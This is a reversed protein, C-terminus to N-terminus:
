SQFNLKCFLPCYSKLIFYVLALVSTIIGQHLSILCLQNVPQATVCYLWWLGWSVNCFLLCATEARNSLPHTACCLCKLYCALHEVTLLAASFLSKVCCASNFTTSPRQTSGLSRTYALGLQHAVHDEPNPSSPLSLSSTCVRLSLLAYTKIYPDWFVLCLFYPGKASPIHECIYM